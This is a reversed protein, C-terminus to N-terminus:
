SKKFSETSSSAVVLKRRVRKPKNVVDRELFDIPTTISLIAEKVKSSDLMKDFNIFIDDEPSLVLKYNPVVGAKLVPIVIFAFKDDLGDYGVFLHENFGTQLITQQSIFITPLEYKQVLIWLDFPTLYYKEDYLWNSFSAAGVRVQEMNKGEMQLIDIIKDKYVTLYKTEYEKALEDKIQNITLRTGNKKEYIDILLDFSCNGYDAEKFSQPFAKKWITSTIWDKVTKKCMSTSKGIDGENITVKNEYLQTVLPKADDRTNFNAYKNMADPVLQEFYEKTLLSQLMIIENERLNYSINSFSLYTQQKLMFSKIRSYRILEDAMRSYYIPENEKKTLLNHKPLIMNCEGDSSVACLRTNSSCQASDKVICTSVEGILKYYNKDGIFQVKDGVLNRLLEEIKTLKNTDITSRSKMITEIDDKQKSNKYDTLLIRVTNRFVNYFSSEM